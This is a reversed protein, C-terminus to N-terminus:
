ALTSKNAAVAIPHVSPIRAATDYKVNRHNPLELLEDHFTIMKDFQVAVETAMQPTATRHNLPRWVMRQVDIRAHFRSSDPLGAELIGRIDARQYLLPPGSSKILRRDKCEFFPEWGYAKATMMKDIMTVAISCNLEVRSNDSKARPDTSDRLFLVLKATRV